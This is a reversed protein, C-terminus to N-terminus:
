CSLRMYNLVIATIIVIHVSVVILVIGTNASM